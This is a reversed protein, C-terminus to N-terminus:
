REKRLGKILTKAAFRTVEDWSAGHLLHRAGAFQDCLGTVTAWLLPLALEPDSALKLRVMAASVTSLVRAAAIVLPETGKVKKSAAAWLDLERGFIRYVDRYATAVAVFLEEASASEALEAIEAHLRDLREAYLVAFLHEKSEFYTYLTGATVGAAKAVDRVNFAAYGRKELLKRGARLIDRRRGERDGWGTKKKAAM